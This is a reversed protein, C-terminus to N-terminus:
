QEAPPEETRPRRRLAGADAALESPQSVPLEAAATRAYDVRHLVHNALDRASHCESAAALHRYRLALEEAKEFERRQLLDRVTAPIAGLPLRILLDDAEKKSPSEAPLDKLPPFAGLRECLEDYSLLMAEPMRAHFDAVAQRSWPEDDYLWEIMSYFAASEPRPDRRDFLDYLVQSLRNGPNRAIAVQVEFRGADTGRMLDLQARLYVMPSYGGWMEPHAVYHTWLEDPDLSEGRLVARYSELMFLMGGAELEERRDRLIQDLIDIRGAQAAAWGGLALGRIKESSGPKGRKYAQRFYPIAEEYRRMMALGWAQSLAYWTGWGDANSRIARDILPRRLQVMIGYRGLNSMFNSLKRAQDSKDGSGPMYRNRLAAIRLGAALERSGTKWTEITQALRSLLGFANPYRRSVRAAREFVEMDLGTHKTCFRLRNKLLDPFDPGTLAEVENVWEDRRAALEPDPCAPPHFWCFEPVPYSALCLGLQQQYSAKDGDRWQKQNAWWARVDAFDPDRDLIRQYIAFEESSREKLWAAKGLDLISEHHECRRRHLFENMAASPPEDLCTMADVVMDGVLEFYQRPEDYRNELITAGHRDYVELTGAFGAASRRLEGGVAHTARWDYIERVIARRDYGRTMPEFDEHDRKFVFYAHRACYSGPAWDLLHSVLFSLAHAETAEGTGAVSVFRFPLTLHNFGATEYPEHEFAPFMKELRALTYHSYPQPPVQSLPLVVPQGATPQTAPASTPQSTPQESACGGLLCVLGLLVVRLASNM